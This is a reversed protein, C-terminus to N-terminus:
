ERLTAVLREPNLLLGLAAGIDPVAVKASVLTTVAAGEAQMVAIGLGAAALMLRDNRGNGICVCQAAGLGEIYRLKAANQGGASLISLNCPVGALSQRARGFTDATVVHIDLTTRLRSLAEMVGPLLAGDVALTGNFDAVLHKLRLTEMGPIIVELM